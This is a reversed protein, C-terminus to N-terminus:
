PRSQRALETSAEAAIEQSRHQLSSRIAARVLFGTGFVFALGLLMELPGVNFTDELRGIM